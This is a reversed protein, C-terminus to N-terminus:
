FGADAGLFHHSFQCMFYKFFCFIIFFIYLCFAFMRVWYLKGILDFFRCHYCQYFHHELYRYYSVNLLYLRLLHHNRMVIVIVFLVTIVFLFSVPSLFFWVINILDLSHLSQRKQYAAYVDHENLGVPSCRKLKHYCYLEKQRLCKEM